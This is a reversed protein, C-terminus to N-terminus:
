RAWTRPVLNPSSIAGRDDRAAVIGSFTSRTSSVTSRTTRERAARRVGARHEEEAPVHAVRHRELPRQLELLEGVHVGLAERGALELV